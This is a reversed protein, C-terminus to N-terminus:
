DRRKQEQRFGEVLGHFGKVVELAKELIADRMFDTVTQGSMSAATTMITHERSDLFVKLQKKGGADGKEQTIFSPIENQNTDEMSVGKGKLHQPAKGQSRSKLTQYM